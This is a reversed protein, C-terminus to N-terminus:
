SVKTVARSVHPHPVVAAGPGHSVAQAAVIQAAVCVAGSAAQRAHRLPGAWTAASPPGPEHAGWILVAHLASVFQTVHSDHM